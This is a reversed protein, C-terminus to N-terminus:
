PPLFNNPHHFHPRSSMSYWVQQYIKHLRIICVNTHIPVNKKKNHNHSKCSLITYVYKLMYSNSPALLNQSQM